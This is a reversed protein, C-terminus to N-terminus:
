PSTGASRWAAAAALSPTAAETRDRARGSSAGQGAAAPARPAAPPPPPQLPPHSPRLPPALLRPLRPRAHPSRPAPPPRRRARHPPDGPLPPRRLPRAARAHRRRRHGASALTWGVANPLHYDGVSVADPDGAARQRIEASTWPGIGPLSRLRREAEVPHLDSAQELRGAVRAAAIITRARVGEVGARHWDWSPIRAWTAPPPCVRMGGTGAGPRRASGACCSGGPATRKSASWRRSWSRPSSPRSSGRPGAWGCGRTVSCWSASSRTGPPSDPCTTRRASSLPSPTWCGRPARAGRRAPSWPATAAARGAVRLAGPGDPTLSTRWIAGSDEVSFAPDRGGRRHVSLVLRVDIRFPALWERRLGADPGSAEDPGSPAAPSSPAAAGPATSTAHM